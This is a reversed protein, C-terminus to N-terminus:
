KRNCGKAKYKHFLLCNFQQHSLHGAIGTLDQSASTLQLLCSEIDAWYIAQEAVDWLPAEGLVNHCDVVCIIPLTEITPM